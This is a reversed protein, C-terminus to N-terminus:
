RPHASTFLLPKSPNFVYFNLRGGGMFVNSHAFHIKDDCRGCCMETEDCEYEYRMIEMSLFFRRCM